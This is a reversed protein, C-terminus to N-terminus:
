LHTVRTLSSMHTLPEVPMHCVHSVCTFAHCMDFIHSVCTFPRHCTHSPSLVCTVHTHCLHPPTVCAHTAQSMCTPPEVRTHSAHSVCTPAHHMDSGHLVHTLPQSMHTPSLMCTLPMHCAYLLCLVRTLLTDAAHSVRTPHTPCWVRTGPVAVRTDARCFM